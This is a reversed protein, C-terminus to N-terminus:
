INLKAKLRKEHREMVEYHGVFQAKSNESEILRQEILESQWQQVDLYQKIAENFVWNRSRGMSNAIRDLEKLLDQPIRAHLSESSKNLATTM